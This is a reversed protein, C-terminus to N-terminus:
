LLSELYKKAVNLAEPKGITMGKQIAHKHRADSYKARSDHGTEQYYAYDRDLVRQSPDSEENVAFERWVKATGVDYLEHLRMGSYTITLFSLYDYSSIKWYDEDQGSLFLNPNFETSMLAPIFADEDGDEGVLIEAMEKLMEPTEEKVTELLTDLYETINEEVVKLKIKVM